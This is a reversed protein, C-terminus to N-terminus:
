GRENVPPARSQPHTRGSRRKTGRCFARDGSKAASGSGAQRHQSSRLGLLFFNGLFLHSPGACLTPPFGNIGCANGLRELGTSSGPALSLACSPPLVEPSESATLREGDGAKEEACPTLCWDLSDCLIESQNVAPSASRHLPPSTPAEASCLSAAQELDQDWQWCGYGPPNEGGMGGHTSLDTIVEPQRSDGEFVSSLFNEKAEPAALVPPCDPAPVLSLGGPGGYGGTRSRRRGKAAGWPYYRGSISM